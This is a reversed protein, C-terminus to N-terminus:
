DHKIGRGSRSVDVCVDGVIDRSDDVLRAETRGIGAAHCVEGSECAGGCRADRLDGGSPTRSRAVSGAVDIEGEAALM